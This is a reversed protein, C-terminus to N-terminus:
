IPSIAWKEEISLLEMKKLEKLVKLSDTLLIKSLLIYVMVIALSKIIKKIHRLSMQNVLMITQHGQLLRLEQSHIDLLFIVLIM